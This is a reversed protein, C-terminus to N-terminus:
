GCMCKEADQLYMFFLSAPWTSKPYGIMHSLQVPFSYGGFMLRRPSQLPYIIICMVDGGGWLNWGKKLREEAKRKILRDQLKWLVTRPICVNKASPSHRQKINKMWSINTCDYFLVVSGVIWETRYLVSSSVSIVVTPLVSRATQKRCTYRVWM